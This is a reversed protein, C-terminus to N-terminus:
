TTSIPRRTRWRPSPRTSSAAPAWIWSPRQGCVAAGIGAGALALESIPTAMMRDSFERVAPEMFKRAAMNLGMFSSGILVVRPDAAMAEYIAKAMGEAFTIKM